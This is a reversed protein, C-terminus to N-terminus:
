NIPGSFIGLSLYLLDNYTRNIVEFKEQDSGGGGDVDEGEEPKAAAVGAPKKIYKEMMWRDFKM